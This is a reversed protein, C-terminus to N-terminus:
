CHPIACYDYKNKPNTTYCWPVKEGDPNRCYNDQDALGGFRHTHPTQSDWRQCPDGKITVTMSGFYKKGQPDNTPLCQLPPTVTLLFITLIFYCFLHYGFVECSSFIKSM